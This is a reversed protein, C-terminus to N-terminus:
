RKRNEIRVNLRGSKTKEGNESTLERVWPMMEATITKPMGSRMSFILKKWVRKVFDQPEYYIWTNTDFVDVISLVLDAPAPSDAKGSGRFAFYELLPKFFELNSNGNEDVAFPNNPERSNYVDERGGNFRIEWYRNVILDLKGIPQNILDMVRIIGKRHTTNIISPPNDAESKVSIGIHNIYVDAKYTPRSKKAGIAECLAIIKVADLRSWDEYIPLQGYEGSYKDSSVSEVLVPPEKYFPIYIKKDRCETLFLKLLLEVKEGGNKGGKKISDILDKNREVFLKPAKNSQNYDYFKKIRIHLAGRFIRENKKDLGEETWKLTSRNQPKIKGKQKMGRDGRMSFVLNPWILDFYLEKTYIHWTSWDLPDDYNLLYDATEVIEKKNLDISNFSVFKILSSLFRKHGIFPNLATSYSCDENFTGYKRNKWYLSVMNDLTAIRIGALKCLIEFKPRVSHNILAINSSSLSKIWFKKDNIEIINREILSNRSNPFFYGLRNALEKADDFACTSLDIKLLSEDCKLEHNKYKVSKICTNTGERLKLLNLIIIYAEFEVRKSSSCIRDEAPNSKEILAQQSLISRDSGENPNFYLCRKRM